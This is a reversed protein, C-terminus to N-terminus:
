EAPRRGVIAQDDTGPVDRVAFGEFGAAEFWGRLTGESCTDGATTQALARAGMRAARDSRGRVAEIAVFVGGPVLAEFASDLLNANDEPGYESLLRTCFALDQGAPLSQRPDGEVVEVPDHAFLPGVADVIAPSDVLTVEHGREAFERAFAGAGGGVDLVRSAAPAAHIAETVSARVVTEPTAASAGARHRPRDERHDVPPSAGAMTEPLALWNTLRDLRHPLDGISRVDRQALLGLARNTPEYSGQVARLFGLEVMAEVTIRAARDTVGAQEAAEAPAEASTLLAELLGTERAAWLLLLDETELEMGASAAGAIDIRTGAAVFAVLTAALM